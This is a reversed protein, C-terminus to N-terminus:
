IGRAVTWVCVEAAGAGALARACDNTTAGTTFVDDVVVLRRRRVTEPRAVAFARHMNEARKARNLHTQTETATTRVLARKFVPIGTARSLGQALREAQNFERAREKLPFLPVPVIFDWGQGRLVPTAEEALLEILYREFWLHRQYKYRHIIERVTANAIVAARAFHFHLDLGQCNGCEFTTTLDGPFPLGCRHCFPPRVRQVAQRCRHGVYGERVTAPEDECLQCLNPYFLGLLSEWGTNWRSRPGTAGAMPDSTSSPVNM